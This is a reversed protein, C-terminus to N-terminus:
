LPRVLLWEAANRSASEGFLAEAIALSFEMACGPGQATILKGSVLVRENRFKFSPFADEMGPYCVAEHGDLFGAPGLVVAPAACIAAIVGGGAATKALNENVAWSQALNASGPMGGPCIMCDFDGKVDDILVDCSVLVGHAGKVALSGVGAMVVDAKLRRLVDVPTLAEIEEFGDAFAVLVRKM